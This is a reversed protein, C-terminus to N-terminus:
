HKVIIKKSATIATNAIKLTYVGQSLASVDLYINKTDARRSIIQRGTADYLTIMTSGSFTAPFIINIVNNAPNPYIVFDLTNNRLFVTPSYVSEGGIDTEKVRYYLNGQPIHQHIFEYSDQNTNNITIDGIVNWNKGDTSYEVNFIDSKVTPTAVSWKILASTKNIINAGINLFKVPLAGFNFPTANNEGPETANGDNNPDVASSPGNNSSDVVDSFSLTGISGITATGIASNEYIVAPNLNSVRVSIRLKIFYDQNDGSQNNLNQGPLLLLTDTDGNYSPNLQLNAANGDQAFAVHIDAINEAGYVSALNDSINVNNLAVNGLNKAYIEYTLDATNDNVKTMGVVQKALGISPTISTNDIPLQGAQFNKASDLIGNSINYLYYYCNGGFDTGTLELKANLYAIGYCSQPLTDLFTATANTTTNYNKIEYLKSPFSGLTAFMRGNPLITLDGSSISTPFYGQPFQVIRTNLIVGTAVDFNDISCQGLTDNYNSFSWLNGNNDFEFNNSVYNYSYDPASDLSPCNISAPLGINLRWIKTNTGSRVDALYLNNEKPNYAIFVSFINPVQASVKCSTLASSTDSLPDRILSFSPVSDTCSNTGFNILLANQGDCERTTLFSILWLLAFIKRFLKKIM